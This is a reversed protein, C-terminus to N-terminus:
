GGHINFTKGSIDKSLNSCLYLALGAVEQGKGPSKMPIGDIWQTLGEFDQQPKAAFEMETIGPWILNVRINYAAFERATERTLGILGMKSAMYASRGQLDHAQEISSGINVIVGGGQQRMVRGVTQMSFFVATLNVDMTRRWDWEDMELISVKPSVSACNVLFDIRSWDDLIQNVMAQISMKKAMDIIYDRVEGHNARINEITHNINIPTIDNVAVKAGQAAFNEAIARGIGKGAGSVLVVKGGFEDM